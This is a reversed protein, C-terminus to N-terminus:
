KGTERNYIKWDTVALEETGHAVLCGRFSAFVSFPSVSRGTENRPCGRHPQFAFSLGSHLFTVTRSQTGRRHLIRLRDLKCGDVGGRYGVRRGASKWTKCQTEYSRGSPIMKLLRWGCPTPSTLFRILSLSNQNIKLRRAYQVCGLAARGINYQPGHSSILPFLRRRM